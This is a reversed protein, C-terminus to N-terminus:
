SSYMDAHRGGVFRSGLQDSLDSLSGTYGSGPHAVQYTVAATNLIQVSHAPSSENAAIRARLLDPIAIAAIILIFPTGVVGMYGLVLGAFALGQGKLRGASNRIEPLSTHGLAIGVIAAPPLLRSDPQCRSRRQNTPRCTQGYTSRARKRNSSSKWATPV